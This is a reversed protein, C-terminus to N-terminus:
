MRIRRVGRSTSRELYYLAVMALATLSLYIVAAIGYVTFPKKTLAIVQDSRRMLENLSILSVLATDKILILFLNGLGPLAVRWIQPLIIRFFIRRRKMGLALAAEIHGVPITQLAGRFVEAAYAGFTLALAVTGALFASPAYDGDVGAERTSWASLDSAWAAFVDNAGGSLWMFLNALEAGWYERLSSSYEMMSSVFITTGYYLLLVVLMEPMGRVVTTYGESMWRFLRYPSKKAVAGLLGLPLGLALACLALEVTVLTGSLFADGYDRLIEALGM